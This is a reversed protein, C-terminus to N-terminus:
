ILTCLVFIMRSEHPNTSSCTHIQHTSKDSSVRTIVWGSAISVGRRIISPSCCIIPVAALWRAVGPGMFLAMYIYYTCLISIFITIYFLLFMKRAFHSFFTKLRFILLDVGEEWYYATQSPLAIKIQGILLTLTKTLIVILNLSPVQYTTPGHSIVMYIGYLYTCGSLIVFQRYRLYKVITYYKLLKNYYNYM